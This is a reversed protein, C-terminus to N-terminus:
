GGQLKNKLEEARRLTEPTPETAKTNDMRAAAERELAERPTFSRKLAANFFEDTDFSGTSSNNKGQSPKEKSVADIVWRRIALNHSKSKYDKEEIYEDLFKIARDRM